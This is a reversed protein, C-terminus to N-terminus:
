FRDTLLHNCVVLQRGTEGGAALLAIGSSLSPTDTRALTALCRIMASITMALEDLNTASSSTGGPKKGSTCAGRPRPQRPLNQQVQREVCIGRQAVPGPVTNNHCTRTLDSVRAVWSLNSCQAQRGAERTLQQRVENFTTSLKAISTEEVSTTRAGASRLQCRSM